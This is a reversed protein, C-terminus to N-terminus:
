FVYNTFNIVNYLNATKPNKKKARFELFNLYQPTSVRDSTSKEINKASDGDIIARLDEMHDDSLAYTYNRLNTEVSHGLLKAREPAELGKKVLVYSNFAM